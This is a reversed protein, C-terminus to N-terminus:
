FPIDEDSIGGSDCNHKDDGKYPKQIFKVESAIIEKLFRRNGDRDEYTRTRIRGVVSVLYGKELYKDCTEAQRGWTVIDHWETEKEGGWTDDTAVSFHCVAKNNATYRLIPDQGLRGVLFVRNM